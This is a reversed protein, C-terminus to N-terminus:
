NLHVHSMNAIRYKINVCSLGFCNSIRNRLCRRMRKGWRKLIQIWLITSMIEDFRISENRFGVNTWTMSFTHSLKKTLVNCTHAFWSGKDSLLYKELYVQKRESVVYLCCFKMENHHKSLVTKYFNLSSCPTIISCLLGLL